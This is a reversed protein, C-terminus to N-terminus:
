SIFVPFKRKGYLDISARQREFINNNKYCIKRHMSFHFAYIKISKLEVVFNIKIFTQIKVVIIIIIIIKNGMEILNSSLIFFM